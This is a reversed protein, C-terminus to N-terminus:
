GGLCVCAGLASCHPPNCGTCCRETGCSMGCGSCNNDDPPQCNGKCCYDGGDCKKGCANCNVPDSTLDKCGSNCCTTGNGCAPGGNCSCQGGVCSNGNQCPPNCQSAVCKGQVCADGNPCQTNCDGCHKPDTAPDFCGGGGPSGGPCCIQNGTCTPGGNCTCTGAQCAEGM